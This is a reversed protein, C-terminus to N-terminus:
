VLEDDRKMDFKARTIFTPPELFTGDDELFFPEEDIWEQKSDVTDYESLANEEPIESSKAEGQTFEAQDDFSKKNKKLM